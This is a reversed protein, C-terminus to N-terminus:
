SKATTASSKKFMRYIALIVIAGLMSAIWGARQGEHYWGIAQGVFKALLAGAVGLAATLFFGGGDKGPMILKALAGVVAGICVTWILGFM